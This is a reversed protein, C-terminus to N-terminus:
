WTPFFNVLVPRGRLSALSVPNGQLDPLVFAPAPVRRKAPSRLGAGARAQVVILIALAALRLPVVHAPSAGCADQRGGRDKPPSRLATRPGRARSARTRRRLCRDPSRHPFRAGGRRTDGIHRLSHGVRDNFVFNIISFVMVSCVIGTTSWYIATDRKTPKSVQEDNM